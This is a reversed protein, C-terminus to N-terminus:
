AAQTFLKLTHNMWDENFRSFIAYIIRDVSQVNTFVVMPRTRRRVEVFCREIANTTRLKRWLHHPFAFFALLESLDRELQRVLSPYKARWHFRFRQFARRAGTANVALYIKQADRKVADQDRRRVAACLNRMKHVWCRQHRARPYVTQLAAALGPCGDTIVLQLSRGVLGRQYLHQLFGEWAVQSEGKARLFGLLQRRGDARVGYAVLLLVKQPGCARRVKLWVGDLILYAWGDDLPAHHFKEVERDLVRTLRSVTQASVAEGTLLAAVKGVARTAIGRLFAQRLLEAVEPARRQFPELSHPLFSRLRTRSVRFRIVGLPTVYEREYSGNRYDVRPREGAARQYWTLGLYTAMQQESDTELLRRLTERTKGQFDGWFSEQLDRVFSEFRQTNNKIRM